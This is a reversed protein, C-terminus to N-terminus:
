LLLLLRFFAGSAVGRRGSAESGGDSVKNLVGFGLRKIAQVKRPPLPPRFGIGGRQLVGLPVTCLAYRGEVVVREESRGDVVRVGEGEGGYEVSEVAHSYRVPLRAALSDALQGAGGAVFCHDGAMEYPDDQDWFALSLDVARAANAFELNAYHWELLQREEEDEELAEDSPGAGGRLSGVGGFPGGGALWANSSGDTPASAASADSAPRSPLLAHAGLLAAQTASLSGIGGANSAHSTTLNASTSSNFGLTITTSSSGNSGGAMNHPPIRRLAQPRVFELTNGLSVM